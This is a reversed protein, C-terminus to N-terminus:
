VSDEKTNYNNARKLKWVHKPIVTQVGCSLPFCFVNSEPM